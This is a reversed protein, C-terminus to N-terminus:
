NWKFRQWWYPPPPPRNVLADFLGSVKAAKIKGPVDYALVYHAARPSNPDIRPVAELWAAVDDATVVVEGFLDFVPPRM